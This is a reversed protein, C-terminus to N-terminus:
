QISLKFSCCKNSVSINQLMIFHRLVKSGSKITIINLVFTQGWM